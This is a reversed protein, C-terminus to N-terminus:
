TAVLELCSEPSPNMGDVWPVNAAEPSLTMRDAAGKAPLILNAVRAEDQTEPDVPSQLNLM